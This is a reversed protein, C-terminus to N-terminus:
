HVQRVALQFHKPQNARSMAGPLYCILQVEAHLGNFGVLCMYLLLQRQSVRAFQHLMRNLPAYIQISSMLLVSFTNSIQGLALTIAQPSEGTSSALKERHFM